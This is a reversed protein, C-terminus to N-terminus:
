FSSVAGGRGPSYRHTICPQQERRCSQTKGAFLTMPVTKISGMYIHEYIINIESRLSRKSQTVSELNTWMGVASDTESRKTVSHYTKVRFLLSISSLTSQPQTPPPEPPSFTYKHSASERHKCFFFLMTFDNERLYVIFTKAM